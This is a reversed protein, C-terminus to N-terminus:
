KLLLLKKTETFGSSTIIKYFYVGSAFDSADWETNHFGASLRNSLLTSVLQGINNYIKLKVDTQQPLYYVITTKPNFPNPFNQFLEYSGPIPSKAIAVPLDGSSVRINDIFLNATTGGIDFGFRAAQDTPSNMIFSFSHNQKETSLTIVRAGSYVTWPDSNLGVLPVITRPSEAYADFSVQYQLGNEILLPSQGIHIDWLNDGGNAIIAKFEGNIVTDTLQAGSLASIDWNDTANFFDGNKIQNLALLEPTTFLFDDLYFTDTGIGMDINIAVEDTNIATYVIEYEQWDNTLEFSESHYIFFSSNIIVVNINGGAIVSKAWFRLIYQQGSVLQLDQQSLQIDWPNSGLSLVDFRLANHGSHVNEADLDFSALAPFGINGNWYKVGKEFGPNKLINDSINVPYYLTHSGSDGSVQAIIDGGFYGWDLALQDGDDIGSIVANGPVQWAYTVDNIAPINYFQERSLSPLFDEGYISIEALDQYVRVYDVEMTAPFITFMDPAGVWAGGVALNLIIYFPKDFPWTASGGDDNIFSYYVNGDVFFDIRSASWEIAYIHFETEADAVIISDGENGSGGFNNYTETHISGYINSIQNTPHEMIDIEGSKPWWGFMNDVPLMWFAPVFGNTAPLKIRAELRGYKWGIKTKILGSTYNFGMYSEELANIKLVSDVIQVNEERTTYYHINDNTPGTEFDWKEEDVTSGNFNDQWVLHRSQSILNSFFITVLLSSFLINKPSLSSKM